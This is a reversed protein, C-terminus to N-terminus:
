AVKKNEKEEKNLDSGINNETLAIRFDVKINKDELAQIINTVVQGSTHLITYRDVYLLVESVNMRKTITIIFDKDINNPIGIVTKKTNNYLKHALIMETAIIISTKEKTNYMGLWNTNKNKLIMPWNNAKTGHYENNSSFWINETDLRYENDLLIRLGQIKNEFVVPIFIGKHYKYDWEFKNNQFFGHFGM